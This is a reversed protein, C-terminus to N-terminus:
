FKKEISQILDAFYRSKEPYKLSLKKYTDIAKHYLMQEIYIKALTESVLDYHDEASKKAKNENDIQEPKPPKITPDEKLFKEIIEAGKADKIETSPYEALHDAVEFPTQIHFIHEVYQQQFEAREQNQKQQQQQKAVGPKPQAYPQFIQEHEKRTKALWWLFTYPLQDDDYKSVFNVEPEDPTVTEIHPAESIVDTSLKQEFAFFDTHEVREIFSDADAPLDMLHRDIGPLNNPTEINVQQTIQPAPNEDPEGIEDFIDQEDQTSEADVKAFSESVAQETEESNTEVETEVPEEVEDFIDQEDQTSEADVEAFSESEAQETEESNTEVETEVPEEVEDFIDQEDQTTEADVEALSVSGTQETEESNAEVETEVPEGIEDFIDQEDQTTEADVEAFSESGTQETEESSAEVETEILEEAKVSQLINYLVNGNSYLSAKPVFQSDAKALLLHIPQAYPYEKLMEQLMPVHESGVKGPQALLDALLKKNDM